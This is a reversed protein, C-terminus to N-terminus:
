KESERLPLKEASKGVEEFGMGQLLPREDAKRRPCIEKFECFSCPSRTESVSPSIPIEGARIRVCLEAAKAAAAAMLQDLIEPSLAWSATKSISGDQNFVKPLSFPSIDRDMARLVNEDALAVGKFQVNKLRQAEASKPSDAEVEQDRIPFYLAGAPLAGPRHRLASLLYIMLQLQEGSDMRAPELKKESSKLDVIRLYDGEPGRYLDLRDIKGQLAVREGSPLSLILPPPSGPAGFEIETGLIQFDGNAAYKTLVSAAHRARRLYEEGQWRGLADAELPSELWAETLHNLIEDMLQDIREESLRPWSPDQIAADTYEQLAQHFFNGADGATFEFGRPLLPKIGYRLFFQHPCAAYCELRSISVRDGHFLRLAVQPPLSRPPAKQLMRRLLAQAAPSYAEQTLLGRLAEQWPLPLDPQDGARIERLLPGLGELALAPTEPAFFVEPQSLGGEERLAPFLRRLESVPEGPLLAAGGEDRLCFSVWLQKEPLSMTRLYDSRVIMSMRAQDLGIVRGEKEELAHREPDSLLSDNKASLAGDNMGPLILAETRGPLMHGIEGIAVGEEREPLASLTARELAGQMLLAIEKLSARRSGLLAHLQDLLNMLLAWVQRDVIAEAFQEEALLRQQRAELQPYIQEEQLFRYLAEASKEASSAARLADHLHDLPALLRKRLAEMEEANEGRTFPKRWRGRDIGWSQVYEMLQAGEERSLSGFGCTAIELLADTQLGQAVCDLASSLLRSVGHRSLDQKQSFFFPVGHRRLAALLTDTSGYSRPLAIAMRNWPIGAERWARLRELISLAEATPNAAAHLSLSPTPNGPFRADNESFLYQELFALPIEQAPGPPLFELSCPYGKEELAASLALASDRQVRFVRASPSSADTMTLLVTISACIEAAALTLQRLDPRLTDFGYIYLDAGQWLGSEKLRACMDQWFLAPDDFRDQLLADYSRWIRSLDQYKARQAGSRAQSALAELSEPTLNEERLEALTRDMRPVAGYLDGLRQYYTLSASCEHLAQHLAMARGAEDLPKRGSSGAREAVLVKLKTPSVVDLNLLGKLGLGTMLDREAQLTYQEPVFLVVPRGQRRSEAIQSFLWPRQQRGPIGMLRISHM